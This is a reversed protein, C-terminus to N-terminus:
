PKAVLLVDADVSAEITVDEAQASPPKADPSAAMAAMMRPMPMQPTGDLRIDRFGGFSLGVIAAAEDVRARLASLAQKTAEARAKRSVEPTVQWGLRSIALGQTQLM